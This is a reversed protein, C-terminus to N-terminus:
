KEDFVKKSVLTVTIEKEVYKGDKMRMITLKLDSGARYSSVKEQLQTTGNVEVGDVKTIIDGSVIGAQDASGGEIVGRVYVGSPWNYAQMVEETIPEIYVGLYGKEDDTLVERNMLENIIPVARSIPIAYGMGEVESSAYKVSNIGIVEGKTNLLAGGSNGPNIAADTQLLVMTNNDVMVERDKASIYGVTVSQGYGLANGIAIAMQGVKVSDSDGLRAIKIASLTDKSITSLDISIVALDALSDRGKIVAEAQTNDIFTVKIPNAGEVVHNNTAILLEKENQGVIIGSGSGENPESYQQGFWDYTKTFTGTITVISPMTDEVVDTIDTRQQILGDSVTTTPIKLDSDKPIDLNLKNELGKLGGNISLSFTKANPNIKYYLENVGIFAGGAFVGFAVAVCIVAAAKRFFGPKKKVNRDNPVAESSNIHQEANGGQGNSTQGTFTSNQGNKNSSIQEAWFSYPVSQNKNVATNENAGNMNDNIKGDTVQNSNGPINTVQENNVPASDIIDKNMDETKVSEGVGEARVSEGIWETKVSEDKVVEKNLNEDPQNTNDNFNQNKNFEDM